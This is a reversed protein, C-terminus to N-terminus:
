DAAAAGPVPTREVGFWWHNTTRGYRVMLRLFTRTVTIATFLSIIVGILLTLAFGRIISAGVVGGFWFLILCTIVTTSNSAWISPWAHDFGAEISTSVSRGLRLEERLRAFILVNADVAMGISLIFGAIGALTLVVGLIKFVAISLVTYILLALVSLVGPLRYYLCMFLAVVGLGIIGAVLSKRLSDQGLSPGVTRSQIVELPVELAGSKLQIVIRQAEELTVGTIRGSKSIQSQITPASIVRKDVTIGLVRGVNRGTFEQFKAAADDKWVFAVEPRGTQQDFAVSASELDRGQLITTYVPGTATPAATPTPVAGPTAQPAPTPSAGAARVTDVGGLSTNVLTGPVLPTAGADIFELLGTDKFVKIAEDTDAIGPLEVVIQRDGQLQVVPESVGLGNVRAEIRRMVGTMVEHDITVGSPPRAELLVQIGGQLDLGQRLRVQQKLDALQPLIPWDDPLSVWTALLTLVLIIITL